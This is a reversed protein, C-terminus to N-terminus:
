VLPQLNQEITQRQDELFPPLALSQGLQDLSEDATFGPGDTALEFLIGRSVRFYLSTFYYREVLGSHPLGVLDLQAQWQRLQAKDTVRFAVHHVTGAQTQWVPKLRDDLIVQVLSGPGGQGLTYTTVSRYTDNNIAPNDTTQWGLVKTFIFHLHELTPVTLQVGYLGRIAHAPDIDTTTWVQGDFPADQDDVLIFSQGEADEFRLQTLGNVEEIDSHWVQHQAFRQQWYELVPRGSVRLMTASITDTGIQKPQAQPWDFFTLDTGPTGLADAYFLHYATTDDQNVTKKVLRLGLLQTYFELNTQITATVATLHHLGHM